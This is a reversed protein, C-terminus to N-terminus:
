YLVLLKTNITDLGRSVILVLDQCILQSLPFGQTEERTVLDFPGISYNLVVGEFHLAGGLVYQMVMNEEAASM